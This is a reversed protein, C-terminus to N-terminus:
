SDVNKGESKFLVQKLGSPYLPLGESEIEAISRWEAKGVSNGSELIDFTERAYASADVFTAPYVLVIQHGKNGDFVFISEFMGMMESVQVDLDLEEKIEREIAAKGTESFEIGGGLPRYFYENKFCDFGKHLLLQGKQNQIIALTLPRIKRGLIGRYYDKTHNAKAADACDLHCALELAFDIHAEPKATLINGDAVFHDSTLHVGEFYSKLFDLHEPAYGHAIRKGKLVGAKALILPGACIAALWLGKENANRIVGDIVKNEKISGPDGGPILIAKCNTLDIESYSATAKIKIGNSAEHDSGDTTALVIEFKKALLELALAIEFFICGPYLIAVVKSKM